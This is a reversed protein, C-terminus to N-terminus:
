KVNQWLCFTGVLNYGQDNMVRVSFESTPISYFNFIEKSLAEEKAKKAMANLIGTNRHSEKVSADIIFASDENSIAYFIGVPIDSMYSVFFHNNQKLNEVDIMNIIDKEEIGRVESFVQIFDTFIMPYEAVSLIEMDDYFPAKYFDPIEERLMFPFEGLSVIDDLEWIKEDFNKSSIIVSNIDLKNRIFDIDSNELENSVFCFNMSWHDIGSKYIEVNPTM